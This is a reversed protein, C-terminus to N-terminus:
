EKALETARLKVQRQWCNQQWEKKYAKRKEVYAIDVDEDELTGESWHDYFIGDAGEDKCALDV